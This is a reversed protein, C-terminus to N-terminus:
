MLKMPAYSRNAGNFYDDLNRNSVSLVLNKIWEFTLNMKKNSEVFHYVRRGESLEHLLIQKLSSFQFVNRPNEKM